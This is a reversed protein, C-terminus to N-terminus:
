KKNFMFFIDHPLIIKMKNELSLIDQKQKM